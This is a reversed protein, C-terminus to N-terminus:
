REKRTTNKTKDERGVGRRGNGAKTQAAAIKNQLPENIKGKLLAVIKEKGIFDGKRSLFEDSTMGIVGLAKEYAAQIQVPSVGNGELKFVDMGYDGFWETVCEQQPVNFLEEYAAVLDSVQFPLSKVEDWTFSEKKPEEYFRVIEGRGNLMMSCEAAIRSMRLFDDGSEGLTKGTALHFHQLQQEEDRYVLDIDLYIGESGGWHVDCSARHFNPLEKVDKWGYSDSIFYEDPMLEAEELHKKLVDFAEQPSIMGVHKVMGKKESPVWRDVEITHLERM